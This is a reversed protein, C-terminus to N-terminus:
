GGGLGSATPRRWAAGSRGRWRGPAAGPETGYPAPRYGATRYPGPQHPSVARPPGVGGGPLSPRLAAPPPASALAVDPSRGASGRCQGTRVTAAPGADRLRCQRPEPGDARRRPGASGTWDPARRRADPRRPQTPAPRRLPVPRTRTRHPGIAPARNPRVPGPERRSVAVSAPDRAAGRTDSPGTRDARIRTRRRARSGDRVVHLWRERHPTAPPEVMRRDHGIVVIRASSVRM